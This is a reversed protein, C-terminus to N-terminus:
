KRNGWFALVRSPLSLIWVSLTVVVSFAAIFPYSLIFLVEFAVTGATIPRKRKAM